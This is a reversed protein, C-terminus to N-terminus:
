TSEFPPPAGVLQTGSSILVETNFGRPRAGKAGFYQIKLNM